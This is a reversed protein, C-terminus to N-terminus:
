GLVLNSVRDTQLYRVVEAVCTPTMKHSRCSCPSECSRGYDTPSDTECKQRPRSQCTAPTEQFVETLQLCYVLTKFILASM